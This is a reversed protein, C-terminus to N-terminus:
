CSLPEKPDGLARERQKLRAFYANVGKTGYLYIALPILFVAAFVFNLSAEGSQGEWLAVVVTGLLSGGFFMAILERGWPRERWVAHSALGALVAMAFIPAGSRFFEARTGAEGNITFTGGPVLAGLMMVSGVFAFFTTFAGAITVGVPREGTGSQLAARRLPEPLPAKCIPCDEPPIAGARLPAGCSPCLLITPM